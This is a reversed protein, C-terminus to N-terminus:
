FSLYAGINFNNSDNEIGNHAEAHIDSFEAILTLNETLSHYVGVTYKENTEVLDSPAEGSALDLNSQGFNIGVKTDGFKYTAQALFGDSDREQGTVTAGFLYLATTGMGKGNYYWGLVEFDGLTVKGGVDFGRSDFDGINLPGEHKQSIFSASAYFVDSKFAIKAHYGPSGEPTATGQTIPELPDFIGLTIKLGGFSPTTYNIQGLWDAYIYGLGISGLSTNAPAAYNGNGGGVGPLTMDNLIVDAGFLGIDRGLKFEGMKDNGFTMFVQRMDIATTGLATNLLDAGQQLNPSGDNTSIGPYFGFTVSLDIGKQTTKAGIALAAPLLGNSVSSSSDEGAAGRCALGGTIGLTTQEECSSHIYYVNVNGSATLTWDGAAVEVAAATRPMFSTAVVATATYCLIYALGNRREKIRM